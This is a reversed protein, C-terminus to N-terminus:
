CISCTFECLKTTVSGFYLLNFSLYMFDFLLCILIVPFFVIVCQTGALVVAHFLWLVDVTM